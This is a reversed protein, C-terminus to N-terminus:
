LGTRLDPHSVMAKILNRLRDSIRDVAQGVGDEARIKEGLEIARQHYKQHEIAERIAGCARPCDAKESSHTETGGGSEFV